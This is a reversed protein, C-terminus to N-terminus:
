EALLADVVQWVEPTDWDIARNASYRVKGNQDVLFSSPFSFVNWDLSVKGDLDLLVPFDVPIREIFKALDERTERYDISVVDLGLDRYRATLSNLSPVEEVCPPCWTAWFNVLTVRGQYRSWDFTEGSIEELNFGPVDFPRRLRVLETVTRGKSSSTDKALPGAPKDISQMMSAFSKLQSPVAATASKAGPGHDSDGMFFWDRVDPVLYTFAPAGAAWFGQMVKELRWRQSGLEPQYIVVPLNTASVIPDLVPEEGAIPAPGFLNPYFLVAGALRSVDGQQQWKRMGRLAALPMRDYAALIVTKDSTTLAQGLVAAVGAGSLTRENESSRPLFYAELLDVRWIEIGASQVALLMDEFVDRQEDHDVLWVVLLDGEAPYHRISIENGDADTVYGSANEPASHAPCAALLIALM